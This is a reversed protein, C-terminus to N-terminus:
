TAAEERIRARLEQLDTDDLVLDITDVQLVRASGIISPGDDAPTRWLRRLLTAQDHTLETGVLLVVRGPAMVVWVVHPEYPDPPASM